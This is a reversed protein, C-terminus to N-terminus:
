GFRKEHTSSTCKWKLNKASNVFCQFSLRYPNQRLLCFFDIRWWGSILLERLEHGLSVLFMNLPSLCILPLEEGLAVALCPPEVVEPAAAVAEELAGDGLVGLSQGGEALEVQWAM